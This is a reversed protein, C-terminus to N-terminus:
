ILGLQKLIFIWGFLSLCSAISTTVVLQGTLVADSDYVQAMSFATTAVPTAICLLVVCLERDRLGGLSACVIAIFPVFLLRMVNGFILKRLNEGLKSFDFSAGLTLLSMTMGAKGLSFLASEISSPFKLGIYHVLLGALSGLILPNKIVNKSIATFSIKRQGCIELAFVALANYLPVLISIALTMLAVGNADSLVQMLAIGIIAINSRYSNQWYAGRVRPDKVTYSLVIGAILYVAIVFVVLFGILRVPLVGGFDASYLNNFMNISLLVYFSFRNIHAFSERPIINCIKAVYGVTLTIFIPTVCNIAIILNEM